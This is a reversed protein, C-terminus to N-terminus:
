EESFGHISADLATKVLEIVTSIPKRIIKAISTYNMVPQPVESDPVKGFRLLLVYTLLNNDHRMPVGTAKLSQAKIM